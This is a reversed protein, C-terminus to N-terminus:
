AAIERTSLEYAKLDFGAEAAQAPTLRPARGLIKRASMHDVPRNVSEVAVLRGKRFCLVSMQKTEASGIVVTEDCGDSLGVIQLKLEGQDTWFWPLAAYATTSKGMLRAAVHRAQDVANQVSELRVHTGSHPSPFSAGDGIASIAPDSTLLDGDVRVGNEVALGADIALQVNPLVGIGYVVLEAPLVRGDLTEVGCVKGGEGLIRALGQNFDLTAGWGVHAAAFLDSMCSSIARGM